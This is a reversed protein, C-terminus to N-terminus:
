FGREQSDLSFKCKFALQHEDQKFFNKQGDIQIDVTTFMVLENTESDVSKKLEDQTFTYVWEDGEREWGVPAQDFEVMDLHAKMSIQDQENKCQSIRADATNVQGIAHVAAHEISRETRTALALYTNERIKLRPKGTTLFTTSLKM